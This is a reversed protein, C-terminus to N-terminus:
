EIEQSMAADRANGHVLRRYLKLMTRSTERITPPVAITASLARLRQPEKALRRALAALSAPNGARFHFGDVGDRVKEAMGGIDSCIVPRRATFAEQIVLPSNEWWVSPVMVADVGQMLSRVRSNEYPGMFRFNGPADALRRDFDDRFAQPQNSYDGYVEFRVGTVGDTELMRAADILVNVGKLRSVQGFFGLVLGEAGHHEPEPPLALGNEPEPMGNEVMSMRAAPLGWAVYRDLLFQSPSVFHDVLGFFRKLYLERLFFDQETKEPFCRACDHASAANCLFFSPRKVMQGFHNCIGLFEHLTLVIRAQPLARRIHLFVEVGFNTYHHLHVVDPRLTTLLTTLARPFNTDQNAHIFHDFGHGCYVYEDPGFPQAFPTGLRSQVKGGSAAVFWSEVGPSAKVQRYLQYAAIEAGGHSVKPHMHSLVLVRLRKRGRRAEAAEAGSGLADVTSNGASQQLGTM